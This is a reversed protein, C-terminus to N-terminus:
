FHQLAKGKKVTKLAKKTLKKSAMPHALPAVQTLKQEYEDSMITQIFFCFKPRAQGQAKRAKGITKIVSKQM